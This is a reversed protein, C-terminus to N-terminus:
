RAQPPRDPPPATPETPATAILPADIAVLLGRGLYHVALDHLLAPGAPGQLAQEADRTRRAADEIFAPDGYDLVFTVGDLHVIRALLRGSPPQRVTLRLM